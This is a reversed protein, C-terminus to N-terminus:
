FSEIIEWSRRCFMASLSLASCLLSKLRRHTSLSVKAHSSAWEGDHCVSDGAHMVSMCRYASCVTVRHWRCCTLDAAFQVANFQRMPGTRIDGTTAVSPISRDAFITVMSWSVLGVCRNLFDAQFSPSSRQFHKPPPSRALALPKACDNAYLESWRLSFQWEQGSRTLESKVECQVIGWAVLGRIYQQLM